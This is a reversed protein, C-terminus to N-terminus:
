TLPFKNERLTLIWMTENFKESNYRLICHSIRVSVLVVCSDFAGLQIITKVLFM